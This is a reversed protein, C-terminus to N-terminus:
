RREGIRLTSGVWRHQRDGWKGGVMPARSEAMTGAQGFFLRADGLIAGPMTTPQADEM